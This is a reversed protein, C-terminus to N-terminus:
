VQVFADDDHSRVEDACRRSEVQRPLSRYHRHKVSTLNCRGLSPRSPPL